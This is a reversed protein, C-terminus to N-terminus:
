IDLVTNWGHRDEKEGHQIAVLEDYLKQSWPGVGTGYDYTRGSEPDYITAVPTIM